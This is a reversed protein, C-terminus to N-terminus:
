YYRGNFSNINLATDSAQTKSLTYMTKSRSGYRSPILTHPNTPPYSRKSPDSNDEEIEKENPQSPNGISGITGNPNGISSVSRENTSIRWSNPDNEADFNYHSKQGAYYRSSCLKQKLSDFVNRNCTFM